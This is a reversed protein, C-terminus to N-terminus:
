CRPERGAPSTLAVRVLVQQLHIGRHPPRRRARASICTQVASPLCVRSLQLYQSNTDTCLSPRRRNTRAPTHTHTDASAVVHQVHQPELGDSLSEGPNEQLGADGHQFRHPPVPGGAEGGDGREGACCLCSPWMLRATSWTVQEKHHFRSPGAM